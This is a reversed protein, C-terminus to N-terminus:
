ERVGIRELAEAPTRVVPFLSKAQAQTKRGKGTKVEFGHLVGNKGGVRVLLDPQGDGGSVYWVECGVSKLAEVIPREAADRKKGGAGRRM